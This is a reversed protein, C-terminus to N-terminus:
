PAGLMAGNAMYVAMYVFTVPREPGRENRQNLVQLVWQGEHHSALLTTFADSKVPDSKCTHTPRAAESSRFSPLAQVM